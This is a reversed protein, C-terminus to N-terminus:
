GAILILLAFGFITYIHERSFYETQKEAEGTVVTHSRGPRYFGVLPQRRIPQKRSIFNDEVYIKEPRVIGTDPEPASPYIDGYEFSGQIPRRDRGEIIFEYYEARLSSPFFIGAIVFVILLSSTLKM